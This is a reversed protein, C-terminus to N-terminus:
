AGRRRETANEAFAMAIAAKARVAPFITTGFDPAFHLM